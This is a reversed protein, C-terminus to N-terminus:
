RRGGGHFGGGHFGGGHFGGGYYGGRFGGHPYGYFGGAFGPTYWPSYFGLGWPSYLIGDGPLYSWFGFGADWYWGPGYWGNNVAVTNAEDINAQSEYASRLRSWRVLAEDQAAQTRFDQAKLKGSANMAVERGKGANVHQDNMSVQAKGDMVQVFPQSANLVYLGKQLILTSAMGQDVTLHTDKVLYDAEVTAQGQLLAVRIDALGSSVMRLQSNDGMRLFVGPTLLMEVKGNGTSLVSGPEVMESGVSKSDVAHGNISAQGEVYNLTGPGPSGAPAALAMAGSVLLIAAIWLIKRQRKM